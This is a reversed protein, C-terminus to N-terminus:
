KPCTHSIIKQVTVLGDAEGRVTPRSTLLQWDLPVRHYNGSSFHPARVAKKPESVYPRGCWLRRYHLFGCLAFDNVFVILRIQSQHAKPMQNLMSIFRKDSLLWDVSGGCAGVCMKRWIKTKLDLVLGDVCLHFTIARQFLTPGLLVIGCTKVCAKQHTQKLVSAFRVYFEPSFLRCFFIQAPLSGIQNRYESKSLIHIRYEDFVNWVFVRIRTNRHILRRIRCSVSSASLADPTIGSTNVNRIYTNEAKSFDCKRISENTKCIM